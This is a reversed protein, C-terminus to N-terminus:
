TIKQRHEEPAITRILKILQEQDSGLSSYYYTKPKLSTAQKVIMRDHQIKLKKINKWKYKKAPVFQFKINIGNKGASIYASFLRSIQLAGILKTVAFIGILIFLIFSGGAGKSLHYIGMSLFSLSWMSYFVIDFPPYFDRLYIKHM